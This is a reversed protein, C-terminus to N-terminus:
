DVLTSTTSTAEVETQEGIRPASKLLSIAERLDQHAGRILLGIAQYRDRVTRWDDQPSASTTANYVLTDIDSLLSRAEALKQASERVKDQALDTVLGSQEMKIIRQELRGIINFLRAVVGDMRNSINAALNIVREQRVAQLTSQRETRLAERNEVRDERRNPETTTAEQPITSTAMTTTAESTEETSSAPCIFECNPGTRGVYSGDPCMMADMTCAVAEEAPATQAKTHNSLVLFLGTIILFSAVSQVITIRSTFM